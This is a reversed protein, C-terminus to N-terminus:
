RTSTIIVEVRRNKARGEDTINSARPSLYGVGEAALREPSIGFNAVLREVVSTARRRSLAINAALSGKSDTHGVLAVSIDPHDNLYGALEALSTFDSGALTALGPDFALDDLPARGLTELYEGIALGTSPMDFVGIASSKSSAVITAPQESTPGIHSIQIFGSKASRSVMLGIIEPIGDSALKQATLYRFDGLDVHMEPEPLLDLAYRFDFGGCDTDKCDLLIEFGADVLQERLPALIRLTSLQDPAVAWAQMEVQGKADIMDIQGDSFASIPIRVSAFAQSRTTSLQGAMSVDLSFAQSTLPTLGFIAALIAPRFIM